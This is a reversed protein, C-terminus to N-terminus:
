AKGHRRPPLRGLLEDLGPGARTDLVAEVALYWHREGAFARCKVADKETMIVEINDAFVIDEASFRHHDPFAHPLVTLGAARLSDFFREPHGIGAVAHVTRGAFAALPRSEGGELRRLAQPALDMRWGGGPAGHSVVLNVERLRSAPERLPGAPLLLGNGLGRRGDLVAIELDRALAYHQLGDDAVIIDVAQAALLRQAAAVRDPAVALPCALRRALLVPEDGVEGPDSEPTVERPWNASRGGYGRSVIGPRWGRARLQEVLWIVLPTKGTGGVTINGVVIVPVPLRTSRLWGRRYGHRRLAALGGYVLSLPWLLWRAPHRRYWLADLTM